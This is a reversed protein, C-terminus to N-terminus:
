RKRALMVGDGLAAMAMDVREDSQIKANLTRLAVTTADTVSPDAVWGNWLMNDLAILGGPRLLKLCREYYADYNEKDADIFAFDFPGEGSQLMADLAAVAPGLRLEIKGALGAEDWFGRAMDTFEKSVDLAVLKGGAPLAGAISLGSYGTFSGVEIAKSTGTLKILMALFAGQDAGIQMAAMPLDKTVARCHKQAATERAGTDTLYDFLQDTAQILRSM